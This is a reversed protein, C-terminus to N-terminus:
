FRYTGTVTGTATTDDANPTLTMELTLSPHGASTLTAQMTGNAAITPVTGQYVVTTGSPEFLVRSESVSLEGGFGETGEFGVKLLAAAPHSLTGSFIIKTAGSDTETETVRGHFTATFNKPIFVAASKVAIRSGSGHGDNAIRNWGPRAPGLVVGVTGLALVGLVGIGWGTKPRANRAVPRWLRLLTLTSVAGVSTAYISMAWWTRTDSGTGIGHITVLVYILFSLYHLARWRKFGLWPRIWSSLAVALGLYLGVIGFAMWLPRYHSLGPIIVETWHFATFPDLWVGLGHLLSFIFALMMLYRHMEDNILRPWRRPSQIRQSLLLGMIVALSFLIYAVFGGARAVDWTVTGWLTTSV